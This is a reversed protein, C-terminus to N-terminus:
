IPASTLTSNWCASANNPGPLLFDMTTPAARVLPISITSSSPALPISSHMTTPIPYVLSSAPFSFAMDGGNTNSLLANNPLANKM